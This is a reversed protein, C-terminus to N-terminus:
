KDALLADVYEAPYLQKWFKSLFAKNKSDLNSLKVFRPGTSAKKEPDNEEEDVKKGTIKEQVEKPLDEIAAEKTGKKASGAKEEKSPEEPDNINKQQGEWEPQGSSDAEEDQKVVKAEKEKGKCECDEKKASPGKKPMETSEGTQHLPEVDLQGSSEAEEQEATKVVKEASATKVEKKPQTLDRVFDEFKKGNGTRIRNTIFQM